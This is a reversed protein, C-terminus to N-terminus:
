DKYSKEEIVESKYKINIEKKIRSRQKNAKHIQRSSQIFYDDFRNNSECERIIDELRWIEYNVDFLDKYYTKLEQELTKYADHSTLLSHEKQVNKTKEPDTIENLKIHLITIKDVLEGLSVPIQIM